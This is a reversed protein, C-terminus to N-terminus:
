LEAFPPATMQPALPLRVDGPHIVYGAAVKPGLAERLASIGAAMAPWPTASLKVELPVPTTGTDVVFDVEQESSTRWFHIQPEAGWSLLSKVVETLVATEFIPGRLPGTKAHDPDKLGTVHCLLGVDTLYVKPTKVLRKGVNAFYPRLVIVQHTAELVSLRAKATNVATGPDRALETLNLLQASRAALARLLAQFLTLDGVQRLSRVDRELYTQIYGAQWLAVDRRPDAVVEPYCGRLFSAWLDRHARTNDNM